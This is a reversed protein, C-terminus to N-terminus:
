ARFGEWVYASFRRITQFGVREYLEVAGENAATVTLTAAHCGVDYLSLLSQRLIAYGVGSGKAEPSVCIQTIHGCEQSVLSALSIGCLTARSPELAAFSAPRFFSGCGPYQVINHLFRRAGVLTRYQDNISSDVHGQYARSILHATAEQYLDTWRDITVARRLRGEALNAHRLDTRMFNRDFSSLYESGPVARTPSFELMMLQSEIRSVQPNAVIAYLAAALLANERQPTRHDEMVYLDGMLGKGDELVYYVYGIVLGDELLAYGNLARLDVFRRVLDASKEFDWELAEWWAATEEQLLPELERANLRRLEVIEPPRSPAPNLRAAM